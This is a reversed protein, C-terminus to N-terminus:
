DRIRGALWGAAFAIVAIVTLLLWLPWTVHLFLIDLRADDTNQAIVIVVALVLLGILIPKVPSRARAGSREAM